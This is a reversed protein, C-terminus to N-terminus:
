ARGCRGLRPRGLQEALEDGNGHLELPARHLEVAVVLAQEGRRVLDAGEPEVHRFVLRAVVARQRHDGPQELARRLARQRGGRGQGARVDLM